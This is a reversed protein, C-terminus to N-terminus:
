TVNSDEPDSGPASSTVNELFHQTELDVENLKRSWTVESRIMRAPNGAVVSCKEVDRTVVSGAGVVAGDGVSVGPCIFARKGLWVHDGIVISRKTDIVQRSKLDVLGHQDCSQLVVEHSFMCDKGIDIESEALVAKCGNISTGDTGRPAGCVNKFEPEPGPCQMTVMRGPPKSPKKLATASAFRSTGRSMAAIASIPWRFLRSNTPGLGNEPQDRCSIRQAVPIWVIIM